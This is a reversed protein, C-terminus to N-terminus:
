LLSNSDVEKRYLCVLNYCLEAMMFLQWETIIDTFKQGEELSGFAVEIKFGYNKNECSIDPLDKSYVIEIQAFGSSNVNKIFSNKTMEFDKKDRLIIENDINHSLTNRIFTLIYEFHNLKDKLKTELFKKFKQNGNIGERIAMTIGRFANWEVFYGLINGQDCKIFSHNLLDKIIDGRLLYSKKEGLVINLNKSESSLDHKKIYHSLFKGIHLFFFNQEVLSVINETSYKTVSM